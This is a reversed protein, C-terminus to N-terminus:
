AAGDIRSDFGKSSRSCASSSGRWCRSRRPASTSSPRSVASGFHYIADYGGWLIRGDDTAPLLPVPQTTDALGQRGALRDRGAAGGVAARHDLVYDYVPVVYRSISRVLPTFANARWCSGGRALPGGGRMGCAQGRRGRGRPRDGAHARPDRVGLELARAGCVGRWARPTSWPAITASGCVPWTRPSDVQGPGPMGIWSCAKSVSSGSRHERPGAPAVDVQHPETAVGVEGSTVWDCDIGHRAITEALGRFSERGM